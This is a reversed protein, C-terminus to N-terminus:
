NFRLETTRNTPFMTYVTTKDSFATIQTHKEIALWDEHHVKFPFYLGQPIQQTAEKLQQIITDIPMLKSHIAGQRIYTLYKIINEADHILDSM